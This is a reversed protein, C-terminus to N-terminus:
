LISSSKTWKESVTRTPARQLPLWPQTPRFAFVDADPGTQVSLPARDEETLLFRWCLFSLLEFQQWVASLSVELWDYLNILRGCELHLKYAICIDPAASSVLGGETKPSENQLVLCYKFLFLFLPVSWKGGCWGGPHHIYRCTITPAASRPRYPRARHPM